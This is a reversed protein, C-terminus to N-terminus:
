PAPELTAQYRELLEPPVNRSFMDAELNRARSAASRLIASTDLGRVAATRLVEEMAVQDEAMSARMFAEGFLGVMKNRDERDRLLRDYVAYEREIEVPSFGLALAFQDFPSRQSLDIMPNGTRASSLAADSFVDLARYLSRPGWGQALQQLFIPDQWPDQGISGQDFYRGVSRAMNKMRELAIVSFMFEADRTINSGPAATAGSLSLGALTPLGFAVANAPGEGMSSYLTEMLDKDGFTETMWDLADSALPVAFLGGLGATSGLATLIPGFNGGKVALDTYDALLWLYNMMWHKMGGFVSGLPSTFALERGHQAFVANARDISRAVNQFYQEDTFKIGKVKELTDLMHMTSGATWLRALKESNAPLFSSLGTIWKGVDDAERLNDTLARVAHRNAEGTYEEVFRPGLKYTDAMRQFAEIHRPNNSKIISNAGWLSRLPDISMGLKGSPRGASNPMPFVYGLRTLDEWDATRLATLEPLTTQLLATTNIVPHALNGMGLSLHYSAGNMIQALKTASNVGLVNGLLKDMIRNQVVSAGLPEGQLQNIRTTLLGGVEPNNRLVGEFEKSTLAHGLKDAVHRARAMYGHVLDAIWDDVSDIPDLDYKFGKVHGREKLFAPNNIARKVDIPAEDLNEVRFHEGIRLPTSNGREAERTIIREANRRAQAASNGVGLGVLNGQFDVVRYFNSGLASHSHSIGVHGQRLPIPREGIAELVKNADQIDALNTQTLIRHYEKAPGEPWESNPLDRHFHYKQFEDRVDQDKFMRQTAAMISDDPIDPEGFLAEWVGHKAKLNRKGFLLAQAEGEFRDYIAQRLNMVLSADPDNRFQANTPKLYHEIVNAIGLGPVSRAGLKAALASVAGPNRRAAASRFARFNAPSLITEKLDLAQDLKRSVGRPLLTDTEWARKGLNQTMGRFDWPNDINRAWEMDAFFKGPEPTKFIFFRSRGRARPLETAALWMGDEEQLISWIQSYPGDPGEVERQLRRWGHINRQGPAGLGLRQRLVQAEDANGAVRHRFFRGAWEWGRPLLLEQEIRRWDNPTELSKQTLRERYGAKSSKSPTFEQNLIRRTMKSTPHLFRVYNEGTGVTEAFVDSRVRESLDALVARQDPSRTGADIEDLATQAIRGWEHPRDEERFLPSLERIAPDDRIEPGMEYLARQPPTPGFVRTAAAAPRGVFPIQQLAAQFGPSAGALSTLGGLATGSLFGTIADAPSQYRGAALDFGTFGASLPAWRATEGLAFRMAPNTGGLQAARRTLGPFAGLGRGLKAYAAGPIFYSAIEGGLALLPHDERFDEVGKWDLGELAARSPAGIIPDLFPINEGIAEGSELLGYLPSLAFNFPISLLNEQPM